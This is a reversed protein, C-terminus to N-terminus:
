TGGRAQLAFYFDYYYLSDKSKKLYSLFYTLEIVALHTASIKSRQMYEKFDLKISFADYGEVYV